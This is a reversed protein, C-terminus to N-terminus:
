ARRKGEAREGEDELLALVSQPADVRVAVVLSVRREDQLRRFRRPPSGAEILRALVLGHREGLPEEGALQFAMRNQLVARQPAAERRDPVLAPVPLVDDEDAVGGVGGM